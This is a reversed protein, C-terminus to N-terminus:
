NEVQEFSAMKTLFERLEGYLELHQKNLEIWHPISSELRTIGKLDKPYINHAFIDRIKYFKILKNKFDKNTKLEEKNHQNVENIIELLLNARSSAGFNVLFFENFRFIKSLNLPKWNDKEEGFKLDLGFSKRIIKNSINDIDITRMIVEHLLEKPLEFPNEM